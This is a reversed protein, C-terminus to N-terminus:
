EKKLYYGNESLIQKVESLAGPGFMNIDLLDTETMELLAVFYRVHRRQLLFSVRNSLQKIEALKRTDQYQQTLAEQHQLYREVASQELVRGIEHLTLVLEDVSKDVPQDYPEYAQIGPQSIIHLALDTQDPSLDSARVYPRLITRVDHSTWPFARAIFESLQREPMSAPTPPTLPSDTGTVALILRTLLGDRRNAVSKLAELPCGEQELQAALQQGAILYDLSISTM